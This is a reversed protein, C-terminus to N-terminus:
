APDAVPGDVGLEQGFVWTLHDTVRVKETQGSQELAVAAQGGPAPLNVEILRAPEIVAGTEAQRVELYFQISYVGGVSYRTRETVGHWRILTVEAIVPVAGDLADTGRTTATQLIEGVQEHRNGLPDGRWVIDTLPYYGNSESSRLNQPVVVRVQQVDYDRIVLQAARSAAPAVFAANRSSIEITACGAITMTLVALAFLTKLKM